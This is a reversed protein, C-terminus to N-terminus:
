QVRGEIRKVGTAAPRLSNLRFEGKAKDTRSDFSMFGEVMQRDLESQKEAPLHFLFTTHELSGNPNQFFDIGCYDQKVFAADFAIAEVFKEPLYYSDIVKNYSSGNKLYVDLKQGGSSSRYTVLFKGDDSLSFDSTLPTTGGDKLIYALQGSTLDVVIIRDYTTFAYTSVDRSLASVLRSPSQLNETISLKHKGEMSPVSIETITLGNQFVLLSDNAARMEWFTRSVAEFSRLLRGTSDFVQPQRNNSGNDSVTFYFSGAPSAKLLNATSLPGVKRNGKYDYVDFYKDGEPLMSGLVILGPNDRMEVVYFRYPEEAHRTFAVDGHESFLQFTQQNDTIVGYYGSSADMHFVWSVQPLEHVAQENVSTIKLEGSMAVSISFISILVGSLLAKTMFGGKEMSEERHHCLM